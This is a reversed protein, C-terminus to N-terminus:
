SNLKHQTTAYKFARQFEPTNKFRYVVNGTDPYIFSQYDVNLLYGICIALRKSKVYFIEDDNFYVKENAKTNINTNNNM